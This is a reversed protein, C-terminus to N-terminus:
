FKRFQRILDLVEAMKKDKEATSSGHIASKVCNEFHRELIKDEVRSLAAIAAHIQNLIDVCYKGEVIMNQIGKVQGAIRKLSIISDAHNPNKNM